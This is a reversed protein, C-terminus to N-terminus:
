RPPTPTPEVPHSTDAFPARIVLFRILNLQSTGPQIQLERTLPDGVFSRLCLACTTDQNTSDCETLERTSQVSSDVVLPRCPEEPDPCECTVIAILGPKGKNSGGGEQQTKGPKATLLWSILAIGYLLVALVVPRRNRNAMRSIDYSMNSKM